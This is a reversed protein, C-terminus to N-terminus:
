IAIGRAAMRSMSREYVEILEAENLGRDFIIFEAFEIPLDTSVNHAGAGLAIPKSSPTYNGTQAFVQINSGSGILTDAVRRSMCVFQWQGGIVPIAPSPLLQGPTKGAVQGRLDKSTGHFLYFGTGDPNPAGGAFVSRLGTSDTPRYVACVTGEASNAPFVSALGKNQASSISVYNGGFTPPSGPDMETLSTGSVMGTLSQSNNGFIWHDASSMELDSLYEVDGSPIVPLDPNSVAIPLVTFLISM